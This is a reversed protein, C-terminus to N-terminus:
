ACPRGGCLREVAKPEVFLRVLTERIAGLDLDRAVSSTYYQFIREGRPSQGWVGVGEARGSKESEVDNYGGRGGPTLAKAEIRWTM